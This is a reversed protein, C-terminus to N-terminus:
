RGEGLEGMRRVPRYAIEPWEGQHAMCLDIHKLWNEDDREPHDGRQHWIGWRSEKRELSAVTALHASDLINEVELALFLDRASGVKVSSRMDAKLKDLYGLLLKLKYENKPPSLYDNIHRRVKHEFHRVPVPGHRQEALHDLKELITKLSEEDPVPQARDEVFKGASEAALEGFIFAGPLFGRPMPATDGAGYLGPVSTAATEDVALGSLGHGGCLFLETTALELDAARMSVGRGQLFRETCPRELTYILHEIEQIREKPLHQLRLRLPGSPSNQIENVKALDYFGEMTMQDLSDLLTAGKQIMMAVGPTEVDKLICFCMTYEMGTLRAGARYGLLYGDGTNCPNDYVGYLYGSAPVGFRATGGAALMVAKARCIIREGTRVNLGVAGAVAPGEKLLGVAMTRNEVRCGGALAKEVLIQKLDPEDMTVTYRGGPHLTTIDYQGNVKPFRVGWAELKKLLPFSREALAYSKHDDCIEHCYLRNSLVFEEPTGVGPVTVINLADMGRPISGAYQFDGKEFVVVKHQPFLEQARIAAMTGASGGGIILIDAEIWPISRVNM